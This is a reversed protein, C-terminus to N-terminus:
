VIEMEYKEELMRFVEENTYFRGEAIQKRGEEARRVLEEYSYPMEFKDNSNDSLMTILQLIDDKSLIQLLFNSLNTLTDKSMINKTKNEAFIIRKELKRLFVEGRDEAAFYREL